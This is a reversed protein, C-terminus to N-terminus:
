SFLPAPLSKVGESVGQCSETEPLVIGCPHPEEETINAIGSIISYFANDILTIAERSSLEVKETLLSHLFYIPNYIGSHPDLGNMVLLGSVYDTDSEDCAAVFEGIYERETLCEQVIADDLLETM